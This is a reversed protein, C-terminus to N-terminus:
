ECMRRIDEPVVIAHIRRRDQTDRVCFVRTELSECILDEGRTVTHKQIFAKRHWEDIRTTITVREGYTASKLFRTHHELLPTGIIGTTTELVHWPPIGCEMFFHLSAADMWRHYRPFFVIGAPDCDGFRIEVDMTTTKSM